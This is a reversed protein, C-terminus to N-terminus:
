NPLSLFKTTIEKVTRLNAVVAEALNSLVPCTLCSDIYFRILTNRIPNRKKLLNEQPQDM